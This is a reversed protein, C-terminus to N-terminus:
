RVSESGGYPRDACPTAPDGRAIRWGPLRGRVVSRAGVVTGAEVHSGATVACETAIWVDEEITVPGRAVRLDPGDPELAWTSLMTRQSCVSRAGIRIREHAWLVCRDGLTSKRGMSLNWPQDIQVTPRVRATPDIAAGFAALLTRRFGYWSHFSCRFLTCQVVYWAWRRWPARERPRTPDVVTV